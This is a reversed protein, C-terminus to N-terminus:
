HVQSLATLMSEVDSKVRTLTPILGDVMATLQADPGVEVLTVDGLRTVNEHFRVVDRVHSVWYDVTTVDGSTSMGVVPEHFTLGSIAERFDDLMPEMLPSHFAHSVNLRKSKWREAVAM